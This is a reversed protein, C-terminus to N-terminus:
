RGLYMLAGSRSIECRGNRMAGGPRDLVGLRQTPSGGKRPNPFRTPDNVDGV